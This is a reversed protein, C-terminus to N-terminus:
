VVLRLFHTRRSDRVRSSFFEQHLWSGATVSTYREPLCVYKLIM